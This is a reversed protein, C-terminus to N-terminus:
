EPAPKETQRMLFPMLGKPRVKAAAQYGRRAAEEKLAAKRAAQEKSQATEPLEVDTLEGAEDVVPTVWPYYMRLKKWLKSNRPVEWWEEPSLEPITQLTYEQEVPVQVGSKPDLRYAGTWYTDLVGMTSKHILVDDGGGYGESGGKPSLESM